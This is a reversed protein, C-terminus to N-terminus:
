ALREWECRIPNIGKVQGKERQRRKFELRDRDLTLISSDPIVHRTYVYMHVLAPLLRLEGAETLQRLFPSGGGLCGSYDEDYGGADWYLDRTCLYTDIHPKIEGFECSEPIQDKQRTEDAAGIRMRPFRYWCAPNVDAKFLNTACLPPLEHDTDAHIIWDTEAVHAGINRACGRNWPIDEKIRYLRVDDDPKIVDSALQPSGDDVVIVTIKRRAEEDYLAFNDLQHRLM